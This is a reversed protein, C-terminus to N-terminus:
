VIKKAVGEYVYGILVQPVIPAKKLSTEEIVFGVKKLYEIYKM